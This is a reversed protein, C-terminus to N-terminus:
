KPIVSTQYSTGPPPPPAMHSSNATAPRGSHEWLTARLLLVAPCKPSPAAAPPARVRLIPLSTHHLYLSSYLHLSWLDSVYPRRSGLLWHMHRLRRPVRLRFVAVVLM